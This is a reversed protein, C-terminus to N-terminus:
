SPFKEIEAKLVDPKFKGQKSYVPEGQPNFLITYPLGGQWDKSVIAMAADEDSTKLLYAASDYGM